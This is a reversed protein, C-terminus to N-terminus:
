KQYLKEYSIPTRFGLTAHPREENYFRIYEDTSRRFDRESSYDRRYAEEKKFTAFFTEAVANDTPRGTASFSQQVGSKLLLETFAVSTYQTGRDSHFIIGAPPERSAFAEKFLATLM